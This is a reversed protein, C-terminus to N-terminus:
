NKMEIHPNFIFNLSINDNSLFSRTDNSPVRENM